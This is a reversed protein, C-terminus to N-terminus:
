KIRGEVFFIKKKDITHCGDKSVIVVISKNEYAVKVIEDKTIWYAKKM